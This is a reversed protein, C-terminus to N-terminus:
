KDKVFVGNEVRGKRKLIKDTSYNVANEMTLGCTHLVNLLTIYCDGAENLVQEDDGLQLADQLEDVEEMLKMFQDRYTTREYLGKDEFFRIIENNRPYPKGKTVVAKVVTM